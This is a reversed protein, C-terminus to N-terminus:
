LQEEIIDAIKTFPVGLGDNLTTLGYASQMQGGTLDDEHSWTIKPGSQSYSINIPGDLAWRWVALPPLGSEGDYSRYPSNSEEQTVYREVIGERAALDALVGLCCYREEGDVLKNLCGTGQEYEGSRLATVWAAKVEPKLKM